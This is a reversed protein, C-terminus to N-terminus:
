RVGFRQVIEFMAGVGRQVNEVSIRENNGHQGAMDALPIAFPSYGYAEIGIDRLFHSDTFATMVSGVVPAEPLLERSVEELVQYLPTDASSVAPTFGMLTEIAIDPGLVRGLEALFAAPNQDPLLRCDLEAWASPPVVNIKDSGALRTLSCTNRTLAHLAPDLQQLEALVGPIRSAARMDSFRGQWGDPAASAIGRFYAQVAPVIRSECEHVRLRELAAILRTVSSADRPRSGHGPEGVATLRFWYPVKETVAIGFRSRGNQVIGREGENIAYGIGDFAEPRNEMLWGVGLFGGAEEDATAMFVVDRALPVGSRHLALFAALHLIGTSKTDIAGRGYIYGDRIEGSLPDVDWFDVDASVVDIHHLLLLGPEDGGELRAWISGRGPASEVTQYSIGEADLIAALFEVGATENGPPNVTDIRIYEQLWTIAETDLGALEDQAALPSILAVCALAVTFRTM